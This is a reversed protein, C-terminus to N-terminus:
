GTFRGLRSAQILSIGCINLVLGWVATVQKPGYISNNGNLDISSLYVYHLHKKVFVAQGTCLMVLLYNAM